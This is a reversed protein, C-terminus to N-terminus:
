DSGRADSPLAVLGNISSRVKYVALHPNRMACTDLLGAEHLEAKCTVGPLERVPERAPLGVSLM